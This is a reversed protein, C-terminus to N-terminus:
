LLGRRKMEDMFDPHKNLDNRNIFERASEEMRQIKAREAEILKFQIELEKMLTLFNSMIGGCYGIVM